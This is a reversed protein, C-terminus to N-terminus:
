TREFLLTLLRPVTDSASHWEGMRRLTFGAEIGQNTYDSVPHLFAPVLVDQGTEANHYRAQGGQLQKYPHLEGIYLLGGPRLLRHAEGFIHGLHQVHELVLNAVIVDFPQNLPWPKTIDVQLLSVSSASLRRHAQRLMGQSIDVGVVRQAQHALWITNLGTGCGIELVRKGALALPQQRLVEANLDRTSNENTDYQYVWENYANQVADSSDAM